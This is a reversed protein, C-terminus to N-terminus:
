IHPEAVCGPPPMIPAGPRMALWTMRLSQFFDFDEREFPLLFQDHGDSLAYSKDAAPVVSEDGREIECLASELREYKFSAFHDASAGDGLFKVVTESSGSKGVGDARKARVNGPVELKMFAIALNKSGIGADESGRGITFRKEEIVVVGFSGGFNGAVGFFVGGPVRLECLREIM